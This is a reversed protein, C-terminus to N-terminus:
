VIYMVYLWLLLTACFFVLPPLTSPYLCTPLFSTPLSFVHSSFALFKLVWVWLCHAIDLVPSDFLAM